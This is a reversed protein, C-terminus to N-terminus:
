SVILAACMKDRLASSLGLQTRCYGDISGMTAFAADLYDPHVSMLTRVAGDEMDAGFNARVAEAGAAIRAAADGTSNTLMYDARIDDLHVGLQHQVLAVALGTRDKGALCHVLSPGSDESLRAFYRRLTEQLVPRLPMHRYLEVMAQHAEQATRVGTGADVHSQLGLTNGSTFLTEARHDAHRACPYLARESDSRLDVIYALGLRHVQELDEATADKHQGSRFLQGTAIRGGFQSTYGGFDRFNHIGQTPVVRTV